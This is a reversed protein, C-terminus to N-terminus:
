LVSLTAGHALFARTRHQTSLKAIDLVSAATTSTDSRPTLVEELRISFIQNRADEKHFSM